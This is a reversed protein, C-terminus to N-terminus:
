RRYLMEMRACGKAAEVESLRSGALELVESTPSREELQNQTASKDVVMAHKRAEINQRRWKIFRFLARVPLHCVALILLATVVKRTAKSTKCLANVSARSLSGPSSTRVAPPCCSVVKLIIIDKVPAIHNCIRGPPEATARILLLQTSFCALLTRHM